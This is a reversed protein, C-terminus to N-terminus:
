DKCSEKGRGGKCVASTNNCRHYPLFFSCGIMFWVCFIKRAAHIADKGHLVWLIRHVCSVVKLQGGVGRGAAQGRQGVGAFTLRRRGM